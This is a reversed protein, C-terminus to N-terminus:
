VNLLNSKSSGKAFSSSSIDDFYSAQLTSQSVYHNRAILNLMQIKRVLIQNRRKREALLQEKKAVHLRDMAIDVMSLTGHMKNAYLLIKKRRRWIQQKSQPAV